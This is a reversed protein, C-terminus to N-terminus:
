DLKWWPKSVRQEMWDECGDSDSEDGSGVDEWESGKFEIEKPELMPQYRWELKKLLDKDKWKLVASSAEKRAKGSIVDKWSLSADACRKLSGDGDDGVVVTKLCRM